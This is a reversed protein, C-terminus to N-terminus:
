QEWEMPSGGTTGKGNGKHEKGKRDMRKMGGREGKEDHRAHGEREMGKRDKREIGNM